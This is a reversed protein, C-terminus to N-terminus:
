RRFTIRAVSQSSSLANTNTARLENRQLETLADVEERETFRYLLESGVNNAQFVRAARYGIYSRAAQPLDEFTLMQIVDCLVPAHGTFDFTHRERDYFKRAREVYDKSRDVPECHIANAPLPIEGAGDVALPFNTERNFYWGRSQVARSTNHLTLQAFSVDKLGPVVLTNVPANGISMLMINVADLETMPAMLLPTM